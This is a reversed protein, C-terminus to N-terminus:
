AQDRTGLDVPEALVTFHTLGSRVGNIQLEIAHEGPYYTRTSIPRFSHRKVATLAEGAPLVKTSLKFVKPALTGNAKRFHVVYDIAVRMETDADNAVSISFTLDGGPPVISETLVPGRVTLPWDPPFGLLGLAGPHAQKILTRTAHRVVHPTSADPDAMWRAATEYALDAHVRSVDNLHNAVSRRVTESEDRYLADLIPLTAEPRRLLEPVQRAWPLRPRTGESALRRVGEDASLTWLRATALTRDLDANLFTRLAFESSLRVTLLALLDLGEDFDAPNPSAVALEAVAESVPWIAWGAFRPDELAARIIAASEAFSGPLDALLGDRIARVRQALGLQNFSAASASTALWPRKPAVRELCAVLGRVTSADILEDAFPM